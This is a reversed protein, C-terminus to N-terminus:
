RMRATISGRTPDYASLEMTVRDGPNVRMGRTRIDGSIRALVKRGDRLEVAYMANPLAERVTGEVTVPRPAPDPTRDDDARRPRPGRDRESM